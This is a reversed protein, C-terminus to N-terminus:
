HITRYKFRAILEVYKLATELSNISNLKEFLVNIFVIKSARKESCSSSDKYSNLIFYASM